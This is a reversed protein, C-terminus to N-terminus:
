VSDYPFAEGYLINKLELVGQDFRSINKGGVIPTNGAMKVGDEEVKDVLSGFSEPTMLDLDLARKIFDIGHEAVKKAFAPADEPDIRGESVLDLALHAAAKEGKENELDSELQAIKDHAVKLQDKAFTAAKLLQQAQKDDM